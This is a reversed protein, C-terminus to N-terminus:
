VTNIKSKKRRKANHYMKEYNQAFFHLFSSIIVLADNYNILRISIIVLFVRVFLVERQEEEGRGKASSKKKHKKAYKYFFAFIAFCQQHEGRTLNKLLEQKHERFNRRKKRIKKKGYRM